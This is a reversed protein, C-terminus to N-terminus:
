LLYNTLYNAIVKHGLETPHIGDITLKDFTSEAYYPISIDYGNIVSCDNAIAVTNIISPYDILNRNQMTSQKLQTVFIIPATTRERIYAIVDSVYTRFDTLPTSNIADNVGAVILVHTITDWNTVSTLEGMINNTHNTDFRAGSLAKNTFGCGIQNCLVNFFSNAQSVQWGAMISDGIGLIHSSTSIGLPKRIYTNIFHSRGTDTAGRWPFWITQTFKIRWYLTGTDTAFMQFVGNQHARSFNRVIFCAHRYSGYEPLNALYEPTITTTMFYIGDDTYNNADNSLHNADIIGPSTFLYGNETLHWDYWTSSWKIRVWVRNYNANNQRLIQFGGEANSHAELIGAIEIENPANALTTPQVYVNYYGEKFDDFSTYGYTNNNSITFPFFSDIQVWNMFDGGFHQQVYMKGLSMYTLIEGSLTASIDANMDFKSLIGAYGYVPLNAVMESTIDPHIAYVSNTPLERIDSTITQYNNPTIYKESSPTTWKWESWTPTTAGWLIRTWINNQNIFMQMRGTDATPNFSYDILFANYAYNPLKYFYETSSGSIAYIRNPTVDDANDFSFDAMTNPAILRGFSLVGNKSDGYIVGTGVWNTGNYFYLEGTSKLAYIYKTNTMQSVSDVFKPYSTDGIVDYILESLTGDAAMVELKANIEESVDLNRFYDMVYDHLENWEQKTEDWEAILEKVKLIVWDMNMEHFDTYPYGHFM